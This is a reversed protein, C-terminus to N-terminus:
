VCGLNLWLKYDYYKNTNCCVYVRYERKPYHWCFRETFNSIWWKCTYGFEQHQKLISFLATIMRKHNEKLNKDKNTCIIWLVTQKSIQERNGRNIGLLNHSYITDSWCTENGRLYIQLRRGNSFKSYYWWIEFEKRFKIYLHKLLYKREAWCCSHSSLTISLLWKFTIAVWLIVHTM